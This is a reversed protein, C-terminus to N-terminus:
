LMRQNMNESFGRGDFRLFVVSSSSKMAGESSSLSGSMISSWDSAPESEVLDM